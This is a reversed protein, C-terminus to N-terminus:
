KKENKSRFLNILLKFPLVFIGLIAAKIWFWVGRNEVDPM